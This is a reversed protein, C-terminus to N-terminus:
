GGSRSPKVLAYMDVYQVDFEGTTMGLLYDSGIESMTFNAPVEVVGLWRGSPDFVSWRVPEDEKWRYEQLWLNGEPDPRMRNGHAPITLPFEMEQLRQEQRPPM